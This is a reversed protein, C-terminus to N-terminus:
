TRSPRNVSTPNEYANNPSSPQAFEQATVEEAEDLALFLLMEQARASESNSVARTGASTLLQQRSDGIAPSM